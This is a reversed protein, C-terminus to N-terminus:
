GIAEADSIPAIPLLLHFETWEVDARTLILDGGHARALERALSLGLGHGAISASHEARFFREFVHRQQERAIGPGKNAVKLSWSEGIRQLAIRVTGGPFNYKLANDLLNSIIQMLRTQDGRVQARDPLTLKIEIGRPEAAIRADDACAVIVERLDVASQELGLKGADARALLLLGSTISSIRQTQELLGAVTQQDAEKLSDSRLLAEIDTRLATLPTKLEHSADASFRMAQQFSAELREFADNLVLALRRVSDRAEPVPVRQDLHQATVQEASQAILEIPRLATRAIWRGGLVVLGLVFPLAVLFATTLNATLDEVPDLDAAIRVTVGDRIFTGLRVGDDGIHITRFGPSRSPLAREKLNASRFLVTGDARVAELFFAPPGHPLLEAIEGASKSGGEGSSESQLEAFVRDAIGSLQRDVNHLAEEYLFLSTGLGVVLLTGAMLLASWLTVRTQLSIAKV